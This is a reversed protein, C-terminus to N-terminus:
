ERESLYPFPAAARTYIDLFQHLIRATAGWITKGQYDYYYVTHYEGMYQVVEERFCGGALLAPVPPEIVEAIEHAELRLNHPYPILGIYPSIVIGSVHTFVDDLTGLVKIENQAIGVEESTERLATQLLSGDGAEFHGGPFSIEGRHQRVLETRKTFLIHYDGDKIFIPVLVAALRRGERELSLRPREAVVRMLEEELM